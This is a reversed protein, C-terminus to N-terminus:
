LPAQFDKMRLQLSASALFRTAAARRPPEEASRADFHRADSCCAHNLDSPLYPLLISMYRRGRSPLAVRWAQCTYGRCTYYGCIRGHAQPPNRASRRTGISESRLSTRSVQGCWRPVLPSGSGLRCYPCPRGAPRPRRSKPHSRRRTRCCRRIWSCCWNRHNLSRASPRRDELIEAPPTPM